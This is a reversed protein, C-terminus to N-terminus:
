LWHARDLRTVGRSRLKRSASPNFHVGQFDLHSFRVAVELSIETKTNTQNETSQQKKRTKRIIKRHNLTKAYGDVDPNVMM